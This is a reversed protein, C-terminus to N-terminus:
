EKIYYSVNNIREKMKLLYNIIIIFLLLLMLSPLCYLCKMFPNLFKISTNINILRLIIMNLFEALSLILFILFTSYIAKIIPINIIVMISIILIINVFIHVGFYIPLRRVFFTITALAISSFIYKPIDLSKRSIVHIGWILIFMEPISRLFFEIWTLRLM